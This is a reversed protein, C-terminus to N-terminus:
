AGHAKIFLVIHDRWIESHTQNDSKPQEDLYSQPSFLRINVLPVYYAKMQITFVQDNVDFVTWEVLGVGKIPHRAAKVGQTEACESKGLPQIFDRIHPTVSVLCGTDLVIPTLKQNQRSHSHYVLVKENTTYGHGLQFCVEWGIDALNYLLKSEHV